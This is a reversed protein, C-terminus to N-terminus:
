SHLSFLGLAIRLFPFSVFWEGFCLLLITLMDSATVSVFCALIKGSNLLLVTAFLRLLGM